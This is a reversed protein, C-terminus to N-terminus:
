LQSMVKTYLACCKLYTYYTPIRLVYWVQGYAGSGVATLFQYRVPVDWVTKNVEVKHFSAM